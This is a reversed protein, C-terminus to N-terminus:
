VNKSRVRTKFAKGNPSFRKSTDNAKSKPKSFNKKTNYPRKDSRSDDKTAVKLSDNDNGAKISKDKSVRQKKSSLPTVAGDRSIKDTKDRSAKNESKRFGDKKRNTRDPGKSKARRKNQESSRFFSKGKNNSRNQRDTTEFVPTKDLQRFQVRGELKKSPGVTSIFLDVCDKKLEFFTQNSQIRIAGIDDKTIGGGNCIMPLLSRPDAGKDRGMALSFWVSAGFNSQWNNKDSSSTENLEEPSSQRSEYLRIYALAIQEASYIAKLKELFKVEKEKVPISWNPDSLLRQHDKERVADASPPEEWTADIKAMKFLRETKQSNRRPVIVISTGKRGARGTRGSRHLLIEFNTPLDAHIVLELNPLDIGRAAVDTAICVRARGDRMAQLANTREGQTLEGSLAVVSFGRNSFRTTLKNVMARTNCFVLANPPEYYRLVNIIANETDRGSVSLARYDIDSHQEKEGKISIRYSNNQYSKALNAISKPVTASFMLTRRNEPSEALIYELDERFGLDLMEDAEDLIVVKLQSVNVSGRHIHDRLRGPTAVLIHVGRELSRREDRMDMGGVCSALVAGAQKYLWTLERKVQLALERTPVIVLGLPAAATGFKYTTELLNVSMALGFGVTKGSGTQASVLLDKETLSVDSVAEQVATLTKYGKEELADSLAQHMFITRELALDPIIYPWGYRRKLFGVTSNIKILTQCM